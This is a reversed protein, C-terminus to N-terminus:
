ARPRSHSPMEGVTLTHTETGGTGGLTISSVSATTLRGAQTGGGLDDNKATVRGRVDPLNFATSGDGSGFTVGVLNFLGAYTTRSIAQGYPFAFSGNPPTGGWYDL